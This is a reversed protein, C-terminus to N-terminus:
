YAYLKLVVKLVLKIFKTLKIFKNILFDGPLSKRLENEWAGVACVWAFALM